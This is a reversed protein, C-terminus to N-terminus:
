NLLRKSFHTYIYKKIKKLWSFFFLLNVWNRLRMPIGDVSCFDTQVHRTAYSVVNSWETEETGSALPLPATLSKDTWGYHFDDILYTTPTAHRQQVLRSSDDSSSPPSSKRGDLADLANRRGQSTFFDWDSEDIFGATDSDCM